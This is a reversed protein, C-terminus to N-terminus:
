FYLNNQLDYEHKFTNWDGLVGNIDVSQMLFNINNLSFRM